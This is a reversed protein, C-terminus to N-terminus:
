SEQELATLMPAIKERLADADIPGIHKYRVIGKKDIVFTEPVGYVGWEIGTDGNRDLAIVTYPNGLNALWQRAPDDEDKYNLGVLPISSTAAFENLVPHEARCAVCWSAWVNLIWVRGDLDASTIRAGDGDLTPLDLPPAPKGIFPSPVERPDLKLGVGLFVVIVLFIGLPIAYRIV